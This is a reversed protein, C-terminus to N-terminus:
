TFLYLLVMISFSFLFIKLAIGTSTKYVKKVALINLAILWPGFIIMPYNIFSIASFTTLLIVLCLNLIGIIFIFFNCSLLKLYSSKLKYYKVAFINIVFVYLYISFLKTVTEPHILVSIFNISLENYPIKQMFLYFITLLYFGSFILWIELGAFVKREKIIAEFTKSPSKTIGIILNLYSM